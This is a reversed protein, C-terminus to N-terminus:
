VMPRNLGVQVLLNKEGSPKITYEGRFARFHKIQIKSIRMSM